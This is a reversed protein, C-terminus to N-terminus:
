SIQGYFNSDLVDGQIIKWNRPKGAMEWLQLTTKVSDIDYDM